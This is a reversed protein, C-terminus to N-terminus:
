GNIINNNNLFLIITIIIIIIIIVPCTGHLLDNFIMIAIAAISQQPGM